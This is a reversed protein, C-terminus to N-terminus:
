EYKRTERDKDSGEFMVVALKAFAPLGRSITAEVVKGSKFRGWRAVDDYTWNKAAMMKRFRAAWDKRIKDAMVSQFYKWQKEPIAGSEFHILRVYELTVELESFEPHNRKIWDRTQHLAFDAFQITIEARKEPPLNKYIAVHRRAAEETVNVKKGWFDM